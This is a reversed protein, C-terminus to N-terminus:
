RILIDLYEGDAATTLATAFANAPTGGAAKVGGAAASVVKGGATIAGVAKVRAIGLAMVGIQQGVETSPQLAVGLVAADDAAVKAGAYGVLDYASFLGTTITSVTLVNHYTQLPM